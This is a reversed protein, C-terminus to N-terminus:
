VPWRRQELQLNLASFISVQDFRNFVETLAAVFKESVGGEELLGEM